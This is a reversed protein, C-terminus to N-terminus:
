ERHGSPAFSGTRLFRITLTKVDSRLMLFSHSAPVIIHAAEGKLHTEAISVKGDYKGAIVGVAVHSPVVLLRATSTPTTQLEPLPKLFRGFRKATLDAKHSGQNPPALMVVRGVRQSITDNALVWRIIVTGLSHGVFHVRDWESGRYARLDVTLRQGLQAVSCCRSSYGWNLVHYGERKLARALLSMSVPTRGMGHVLVVLEGPRTGSGAVDKATNCGSLFLILSIALVTPTAVCLTVMLRSHQQVTRM